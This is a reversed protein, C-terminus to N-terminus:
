SVQQVTGGGGQKFVTLICRFMLNIVEYRKQDLEKSNTLFLLLSTYKLM